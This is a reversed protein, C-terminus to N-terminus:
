PEEKWRAVTRISNRTRRSPEDRLGATRIVEKVKRGM